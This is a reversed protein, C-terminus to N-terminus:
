GRREDNWAEYAKAEADRLLLIVGEAKAYRLGFTHGVAMLILSIQSTTLLVSVTVDTESDM